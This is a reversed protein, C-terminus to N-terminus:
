PRQQWDMGSWAGRGVSWPGAGAGMGRGGKLNESKKKVGRMLAVL